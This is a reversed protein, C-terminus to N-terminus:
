LESYTKLKAYLLFFNSGLEWSRQLSLSSLHRLSARIFGAMLSSTLSSYRFLGLRLNGRPHVRFDPWRFKKWHRTGSFYRDFLMEGEDGNGKLLRGNIRPSLSSEVRELLSGGIERYQGKKEGGGRKFVRKESGRSWFGGSGVTQKRERERKTGRERERERKGGLRRIWTAASSRVFVM